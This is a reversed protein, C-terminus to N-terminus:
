TDKRWRFADAFQYARKGVGSHILDTVGVLDAGYAGALRDLMTALEPSPAYRYAAPQSVPERAAIGAGELLALLEAARSEPMYLGRAVAATTMAEAPDKRLLLIGELYAVSPISTLIFRRLDDPINTDSDV